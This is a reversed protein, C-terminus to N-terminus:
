GFTFAYGTVGREFELTLTHVGAKPLDVLSYLRQDGVTVVGGDVDEGSDAASIPKGDLSM